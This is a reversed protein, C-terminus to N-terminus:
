LVYTVIILSRKMRNVLKCFPKVVSTVRLMYGESECNVKMPTKVHCIDFYTLPIFLLENLLRWMIMISSILLGNGPYDM